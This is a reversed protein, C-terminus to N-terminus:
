LIAEATTGWQEELPHRPLRHRLYTLVVRQDGESLGDILTCIEDTARSMKSTTRSARAHIGRSAKAPCAPTGRDQTGAFPGEQRPARNGAAVRRSAERSRGALDM